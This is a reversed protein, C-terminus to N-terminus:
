EIVEVKTEIAPNAVTIGSLDMWYAAEEIAHEDDEALNHDVVITAYDFVFSIKYVKMIEQTVTEERVKNWRATTVLSGNALMM